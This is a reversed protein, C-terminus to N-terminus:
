DYIDGTVLRRWYVCSIFRFTIINPVVVHEIKNIHATILDPFISSLIERGRRSEFFRIMFHHIYSAFAKSQAHNEEALM